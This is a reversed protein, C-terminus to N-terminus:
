STRVITSECAPEVKPTRVPLPRLRRAGAEVGLV